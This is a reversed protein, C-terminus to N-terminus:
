GYFVLFSQCRSKKMTYHKPASFRKVSEAVICNSLSYPIWADFGLGLRGVKLGDPM